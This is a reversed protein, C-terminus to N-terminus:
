FTTKKICLKSGGFTKEETPMLPERDRGKKERKRGKIQGPVQPRWGFLPSSPPEERSLFTYHGGAQYQLARTIRTNLLINTKKFKPGVRGKAKPRRKRPRSGGKLLVDKKSGPFPKKVQNGWNNRWKETSLRRQKEWSDPDGKLVRDAGLQGNMKQFCRDKESLPDTTKQKDGTL